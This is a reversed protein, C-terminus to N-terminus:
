GGAEEEQAAVNRHRKPDQGRDPAVANQQHVPDASLDHQDQDPHQPQRHEHVLDCGVEGCGLDGAAMREEQDAEGLDEARELTQEADGGKPARGRDEEREAEADGDGGDGEDGHLLANLAVDVLAGCKQGRDAM